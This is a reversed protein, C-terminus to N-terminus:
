SLFATQVNSHYCITDHSDAIGDGNEDFGGNPLLDISCSLRQEPMFYGFENLARIDDPNANCNLAIPEDLSLVEVSILPKSYSKKM